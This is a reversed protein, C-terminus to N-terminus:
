RIITVDGKIYTKTGDLFLVDIYYYYVGPDAPVNKNYYYGNWSAKRTGAAQYVLQGWRNFVKFSKIVYGSKNVFDPEFVDNRGDGNPSFANPMVVVPILSDAKIYLVATDICGLTSNGVVKVTDSQRLIVSQAPVTQFPFLPTPIWASVDYDLVNASTTFTVHDGRVPEPPDATVTLKFHEPYILYLHLLSDCGSASKFTDTVVANEYYTIGRFTVSDCSGVMEKIKRPETFVRIDTVNYISDCGSQSRITDRLVTSATYTIGKYVLSGCGATDITHTVSNDPYVTFTLPNPMVLANDCLDLLTNNDNGNQASLTYVGAPLPPDFMLEVENTYGQNSTNCAIGAAAVITGSPSLTFDSGNTAISSCKVQESLQITTRRGPFCSAATQLMRPPVQDNFVATSGAFNITFGSSPAGGVGFNNIMILYTQGTTVNLPAVFNSGVTGSQVYQDATTASLGVIGNNTVPNQNQNFNCRVVDSSLLNACNKGTANIIAFDYDDTTLQPTITFVLTGSSIINLRLWMSNQEGSGCPTNPMDSAVGNGQYSYPSFFGNGCILLANCADQEPRNPPLLQGYINGAGAQLLLFLFFIRYLNKM